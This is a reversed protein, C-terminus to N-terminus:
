ILDLSIPQISPHIPSHSISPGWALWVQGLLLKTFCCHCIFCVFSVSFDLSLKCFHCIFCVFSFAFDLSLKRGGYWVTAFWTIHWAQILIAGKINIKLNKIISVKKRFDYRYDIIAVKRHWFLGICCSVPDGLHNLWMELPDDDDDDDFPM